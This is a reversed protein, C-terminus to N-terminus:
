IMYMMVWQAQIHLTAEIAPSLFPFLCAVFIVSASVSRRGFFILPFSLTAFSALSFAFLSLCLLVDRIDTQSLCLPYVCLCLSLRFPKWIM